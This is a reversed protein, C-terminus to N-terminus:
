FNHSKNLNKLADISLALIPSPKLHISAQTTCGSKVLVLGAGGIGVGGDALDDVLFGQGQGFLVAAQTILPQLYTDANIAARYEASTPVGHECVCAHAAACHENVWEGGLWLDACDKGSQGRPMSAMWSTFEETAGSSCRTSPHAAACRM